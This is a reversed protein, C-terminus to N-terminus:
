PIFNIQPEKATHEPRQDQRVLNLLPKLIGIRGNYEVFGLARFSNMFLCVRSGDANVANLILRVTRETKSLAIVIIKEIPM